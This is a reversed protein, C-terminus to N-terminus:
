SELAMAKRVYSPHPVASVDAIWEYGAPKRPARAAYVVFEIKRTTVTHRFTGLLERNDTTFPEGALLSTDGHPLHYMADMLTGSARRMLVRGRRDRILYLPITLERTVKKPKAPPLEDIRGTARAVCEDHVPCVLCTPNRPKCILAGLEMLSQNLARPSQSAHVMREALPWADGAHAFLRSLVRAVNGDVIPARQEFAISAIAGATYRGIGPITLLKEVDAPIVGDFREVVAVAGARLMKARRYYGLGSWATTVDDDTAKALSALDPFRQMFRAFFPLVVEMRTQQLMVESVWVRYPDYGSRWPLPRQHRSFWRELLRTTRGLDPTQM